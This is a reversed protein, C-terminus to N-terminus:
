FSSEHLPCTVRSTSVVKFIIEANHITNNKVFLIKREGRNLSGFINLMEAKAFQPKVLSLKVSKM